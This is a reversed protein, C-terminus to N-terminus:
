VKNASGFLDIKKEVLNRIADLVPGESKYMAYEDPQDKLVQELTDKFAQRMETNLNVKVIGNQIAAAVQDEPIGSSGHLSLFAGTADAIKKVLEPDIHKEGGGYLGHINGVFAAFIDIGSEQVFQKAKEPDTKTVEGAVEAAAEKHVESSGGIHDLEGEVILGKAHAKEVVEKLNKLNEELPLKSGDYHILDFGEEIAKLCADLETAHDLNVLVPIGFEQAFNRALDVVNEGGMWDTEGPSCEIIVPSKKNRAAECVARFTELNGVNFAGIAFKENKAKQLWDRAKM